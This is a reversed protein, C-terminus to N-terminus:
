GVVLGGQAETEEGTLPPIILSEYPPDSVQPEKSRAQSVTFEIEFVDSLCLCFWLSFDGLNDIKLSRHCVTIFLTKPYLM